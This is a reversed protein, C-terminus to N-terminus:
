IKQHGNDGADRQLKLLASCAFDFAFIADSQTPAWDRPKHVDPEESNITWILGPTVEQFRAYEELPIGHRALQIPELLQQFSHTIRSSQLNRDFSHVFKRLSEDDGFRVADRAAKGIGEVIARGIDDNWPQERINLARFDQWGVSFSLSAEVTATSFDRGLLAEDAAELHRRARENKILSAISIEELDKGLVERTADRIFSEAQALLQRVDEPSPM